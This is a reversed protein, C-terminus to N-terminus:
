KATTEPRNASLIGLRRLGAAIQTAIARLNCFVSGEQPPDHREPGALNLRFAAECTNKRPLTLYNKHIMRNLRRKRGVLRYQTQDGQPKPQPYGLMYLTHDPGAPDM